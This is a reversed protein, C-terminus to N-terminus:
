RYMAQPVQSMTQQPAQMFMQQPSMVQPQQPMMQMMAPQQPMMQGAQPFVAPQQLLTQQPYMQGAQMFTPQAQPMMQSGQMFAAQQQMTQQQQPMQFQAQQLPMMQVGQPFAAQELPMMQNGQLFAAQPQQQTMMQNGQYLGQVPAAQQQFQSYLQGNLPANPMMLNQRSAGAVAEVMAEERQATQGLQEMQRQIQVMQQQLQGQQAQLNSEVARMASVQQQRASALMEQQRTASLMEQQRVASQVEQQRSTAAGQFSQMEKQVAKNDQMRHGQEQLLGMPPLPRPADNSMAREAAKKGACECSRPSTASNVQLLVPPSQMPVKRELGVSGDARTMIALRPHWPRREEIDPGLGPLSSMSPRLSKAEGHVLLLSNLLLGLLCATTGSSVM